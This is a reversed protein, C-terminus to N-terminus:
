PKRGSVDLDYGTDVGKRSSPIGETMWKPAPKEKLYHDFFQMLRITYDVADRGNVGHTGEDYELMWAKKGLRRLGTFFEIGQWWSVSADKRNHLMLLPTTVKDARFIPSNEIYM